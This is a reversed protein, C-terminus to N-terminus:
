LCPIEQGKLYLDEQTEIKEFEFAVFRFFFAARERRKKLLLIIVLRKSFIDRRSCIYSFSTSVEQRQTGRLM